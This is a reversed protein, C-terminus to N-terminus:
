PCCATSLGRPGVSVRKGALAMKKKVSEGM